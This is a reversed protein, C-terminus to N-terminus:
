KTITTRVYNKNIAIINATINADYKVQMLLTDSTQYAVYYNNKIDYSFRGRGKGSFSNRTDAMDMKATYVEATTFYATGDENSALKYTTLLEVKMDGGGLAVNFPDKRTFSDGVNMVKEPLNLQSFSSELTQKIANKTEISLSAALSLSDVTPFSQKRCHAYALIKDTVQNKSRKIFYNDTNIIVPFSGFESISGTKMVTTHENTTDKLTPNAIGKDKLENLYKPTCAYAIITRSNSGSVQTYILNPKIYVNFDLTKDDIPMFSLSFLTLTILALIQKKM